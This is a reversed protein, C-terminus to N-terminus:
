LEFYQLQKSVWFRNFVKHCLYFASLKKGEDMLFTELTQKVATIPQFASLQFM